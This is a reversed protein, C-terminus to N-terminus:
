PAAKHAPPAPREKPRVRPHAEMWRAPLEFVTKGKDKLAPTSAVQGILRDDSSFVSVVVAVFASERDEAKGRRRSLAASPLDIAKFECSMSKAGLLPILTFQLTRTEQLSGSNPNKVFYQVLVKLNTLNTSATKSRLKIRLQYQVDETDQVCETIIGVGGSFPAKGTEMAVLQRFSTATGAAAPSFGETMREADYMGTPDRRAQLLEGHRGVRPEALVFPAANTAATATTKPDARTAADKPMAADSEDALLFRAAQYDPTERAVKEEADFAKALELQDERTAQKVRQELFQLYRDTCALVKRAAEVDANGQAERCLKGARALEPMASPPVSLALVGQKEYQKIAEDAAQVGELDGKQQADQRLAALTKLYRASWEAKTAACEQKFEQLKQQYAAKNKSVEETVAPADAMVPLALCLAFVSGAVVSSLRVFM